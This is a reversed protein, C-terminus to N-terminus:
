TGAQVVNQLPEGNIYRRLEDAAVKLSRADFQPSSGGIHPTILLNPCHWLPHDVPLPEPDTVDLAARIKGSNLAEVLADSMKNERLVVELWGAEVTAQEQYRFDTILFFEKATILGISDDGTFNTLYALDPQYTLLIGDLNLPGSVYSGYCGLQGSEVIGTSNGGDVSVDNHSYGM